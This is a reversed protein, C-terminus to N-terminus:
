DKKFARMLAEYDEAYNINFFPSAEGASAELPLFGTKVLPFLDRGVDSLHIRRTSRDILRLGLSQELERILGSLASQTVFLNEAALTFSGARAVAVFARLQRLTVNMLNGSSHM